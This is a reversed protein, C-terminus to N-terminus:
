KEKSDPDDKKLGLAVGLAALLAAAGVGFEQMNFASGKVIVEWGQLFLGQLGALGAIIKTADPSTNDKGSLLKTVWSILKEM